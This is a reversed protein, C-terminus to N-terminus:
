ANYCIGYLTTTNVKAYYEGIHEWISKTYRRVKSLNIGDIDFVSKLAADELSDAYLDILSGDWEHNSGKNFTICDNNFNFRILYRHM